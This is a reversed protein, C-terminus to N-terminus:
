ARQEKLLVNVLYTFEYRAVLQIGNTQIRLFRESHGYDYRYEKRLCLQTEALALPESCTARKCYSIRYTPTSLLSQPQINKKTLRFSAVMDREPSIKFRSQQHASLIGRRLQMGMLSRIAMFWCKMAKLCLETKLFMRGLNEKLVEIRFGVTIFDCYGDDWNVSNV